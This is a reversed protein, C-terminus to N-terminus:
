ARYGKSGGGACWRSRIIGETTGIKSNKEQRINLLERAHGVFYAVTSSCLQKDDTSSPMAFALASVSPVSPHANQARRMRHSLQSSVKMLGSPIRSSGTTETDTPGHPRTQRTVCDVRLVHIAKWRPLPLISCLILSYGPLFLDAHRYIVPHVPGPAGTLSIKVRKPSHIERGHCRKSSEQRGM